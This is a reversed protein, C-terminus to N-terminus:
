SFIREAEQNILVLANKMNTVRDALGLSIFLINLICGIQIGFSYVPLEPILGTKSLGLLLGGSLALLWATMFVHAQRLGKTCGVAAAVMILLLQLSNALNTPVLLYDRPIVCVSIGMLGLLLTNATVM